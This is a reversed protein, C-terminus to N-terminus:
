LCISTHNRLNRMTVAVKEHM